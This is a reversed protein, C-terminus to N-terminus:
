IADLWRRFNVVEVPVMGNLRTAALRYAIIPFYRDVWGREAAESWSTGPPIDISKLLILRSASCIPMLCDVTPMTLSLWLLEFETAIM